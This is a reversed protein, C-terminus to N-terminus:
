NPKLPLTHLRPTTVKGDLVTVTAGHQLTVFEDPALGAAAAAQVLLAPPEDM